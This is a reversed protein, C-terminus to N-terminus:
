SFEQIAMNSGAAGAIANVAQTTFTFADMVFTGGNPNLTIGSNLVAPNSGFGISITASSTNGLVLGTRSLNSGLIVGSTAAVSAATPSGPNQPVRGPNNTVTVTGSVTAIVSGTIGVSGANLHVFLNGSGDVVLASGGAFLSVNGGIVTGSPATGFNTPAGTLITSDWKTVNTPLPNPINLNSGVVPFLQASGSM